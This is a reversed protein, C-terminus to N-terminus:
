NLLKDFIVKYKSELPLEEMEVDDINVNSTQNTSDIENKQNETTEEVVNVILDKKSVNKNSTKNSYVYFFTGCVGFVVVTGLTKGIGKIFSTFLEQKITM